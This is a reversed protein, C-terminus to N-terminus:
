SQWFPSGASQETHFRPKSKIAALCLSEERSRSTPGESIHMTKLLMYYSSCGRLCIFPSNGDYSLFPEKSEFGAWNIKVPEIVDRNTSSCNTTTGVVSYIFRLNAYIKVEISYRSSSCDASM